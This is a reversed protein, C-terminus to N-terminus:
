ALRSRGCPGPRRWSVASPVKPPGAPSADTSPGFRDPLDRWPVGTRFKFVIGELVQRHDRWGGHARGAPPLLPAIVAWGADSLQADWM